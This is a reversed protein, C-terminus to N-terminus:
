EKELKRYNIEAISISSMFIVYRAARLFLGCLNILIKCDALTFVPLIHRFTAFNESM